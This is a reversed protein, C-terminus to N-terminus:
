LIYLKVGNHIDINQGCIVQNKKVMHESNESSSGMPSMAGPSRFNEMGLSRKLAEQLNELSRNQFPRDEAQIRGAAPSLGPSSTYTAKPQLSRPERRKTHRSSQSSRVVESEGDSLGFDEEEEETDPYSGTALEQHVGSSSGSGSRALLPGHDQVKSLDVEQIETKMCIAMMTPYASSICFAHTTTPSYYMTHSHPQSDNSMM